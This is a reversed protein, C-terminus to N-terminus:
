AQNEEFSVSTSDLSSTIEESESPPAPPACSVMSVSMAVAFLLVLKKM